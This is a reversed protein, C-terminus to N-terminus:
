VSYYKLSLSEHSMHKQGMITGHKLSCLEYLSVLMPQNMERVQMEIVHLHIMTRIIDRFVGWKM